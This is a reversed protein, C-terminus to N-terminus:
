VIGRGYACCHGSYRVIILRKGSTRIVLVTESNILQRRNASTVRGDASENGNRNAVGGGGGGYRSTRMALKIKRRIRPCAADSDMEILSKTVVTAVYKSILVAIVSLSVSIAASNMESERKRTVLM